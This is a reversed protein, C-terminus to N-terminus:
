RRLHITLTRQMWGQTCGRQVTGMVGAQPGLLPKQPGRLFWQYRASAKFWALLCPSRLSLYSLAEPTRRSQRLIPFTKPPAHTQVGIGASDMTETM